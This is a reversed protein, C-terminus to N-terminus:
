RYQRVTLTGNNPVINKLALYQQLNGVDFKHEERVHTTQDEM